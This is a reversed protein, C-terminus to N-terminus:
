RASGCLACLWDLSFTEEYESDNICRGCQACRLICLACARCAQSSQKAQQCSEAPCDYVLRHNLCKPCMEIDIARDDDCSLYLNGRHYYRPERHEQQKVTDDELLLKLVDYHEQTVGYVGGIRLQKLGLKGSVKIEKLITVITDINVRSCGPVSLKTLKPNNELVHKLGVGTIWPCEVLALHQVNGQARDTLKILIDDTIKENLPQDIYFRSWFFPDDRVTTHLSTCVMEVSLIDRLSLYGLAFSVGPHLKGEDSPVSTGTGGGDCCDGFVMDDSGSYVDNDCMMEDGLSALEKMESDLGFGADCVSSEEMDLEMREVSECPPGYGFQGDVVNTDLSSLRGNGPVSDQSRLANNWIFYNLGAFLQYHGYGGYGGLELDQLWGNIATFTTSIDMGFPDSPLVDLIDKQLNEQSECRDRGFDFCGDVVNEAICDAFCSSGVRMPSVLSDEPLVMRHSYNLAM